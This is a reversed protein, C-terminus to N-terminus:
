SFIEHIKQFSAVIDDMDDQSGLLVSHHLLITTQHEKTAVPLAYSNPDKIKGLYKHHKQPAYLPHDNLPPYTPHVWTHLESEIIKCFLNVNLEKYIEPKFRINYHYYSRMTNKAYPKIPELGSIQGLCKDLYKANNFRKQNLTELTPLTDLLIAAQFEPLAMNGGIIDGKEKLRVHGEIPARNIIRGHTIAQQFLNYLKRDSTIIAGGEGSALPKGHQFSFVGVHGLSGAKKGEWEAGHAQACDEIIFLNNESAIERISDMDAMSSYLHVVLIAKTRSTIAKKIEQPNICQTNPDIDVLVPTARVKLISVPCAVWTLGTLIVEDGEGIGLATLVAIIASSGHDTPVCYKVGNYASFAEAFEEYKLKKGDYNSSISWCRRELIKGFEKLLNPSFVPWSPWNKQQSRVSQGGYYALKSSQKKM